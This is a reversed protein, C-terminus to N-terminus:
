KHEEINLWGVMANTSIEEGEVRENGRGVVLSPRVATEDKKGHEQTWIGKWKGM